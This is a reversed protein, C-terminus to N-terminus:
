PGIPIDPPPAQSQLEALAAQTDGLGMATDGGPASQSPAQPWRGTVKDYLKGPVSRDRDDEINTSPRGNIAMQRGALTDVVGSMSDMGGASQGYRSLDIENGPRGADVTRTWRYGSNEEGEGTSSPTFSGPEVPDPPPAKRQLINNDGQTRMAEASTNITAQGSPTLGASRNGSVQGSVPEAESQGFKSFDIPQGPVRGSMEEDPQGYRAFDLGAPQHGDTAGGYRTQRADMDANIASTLAGVTGAHDFEPNLRRENPTFVDAVGASPPVQGGILRAARGEGFFHALYLENNTPERGIRQSLQDKTNNIFRSWGKAQDYPDSSNGAGYRSRLEGSMQFLGYISRSAKANPDGNSEREAVALAFSPNVGEEQAARTIAAEIEPSM